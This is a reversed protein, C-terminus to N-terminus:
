KVLSNRSCSLNNIDYELNLLPHRIGRSKAAPWQNTKLSNVKKNKLFFCLVMNEESCDGHPMLDFMSKNMFKLSKNPICYLFITLKPNGSCKCIILFIIMPYLAMRESQVSINWIEREERETCKLQPTQTEPM